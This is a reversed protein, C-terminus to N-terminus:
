AAGQTTSAEGRGDRLARLDDTADDTQVPQSERMADVADLTALPSARAYAALTARAVDEFTTGQLEAIRHLRNLTEDDLDPILLDAM